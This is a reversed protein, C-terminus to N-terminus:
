MKSFSPFRIFESNISYAIFNVHKIKGYECSSELYLVLMMLNSYEFCNCQLRNKSSDIRFYTLLRQFIRKKTEM